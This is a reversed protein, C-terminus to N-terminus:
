YSSKVLSALTRCAARYDEEKSTGAASGSSGM